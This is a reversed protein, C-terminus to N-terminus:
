SHKAAALIAQRDIRRGPAFAYTKLREGALWGGDTGGDPDLARIAAEVAMLRGVAVNRKHAVLVLNAGDYDRKTFTIRLNPTTYRTAAKGYRRTLTRSARRRRM